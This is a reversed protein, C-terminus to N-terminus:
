SYEHLNNSVNEIDSNKFTNRLQGFTRRSDIELKKRKEIERNIDDGMRLQDSTLDRISQHLGHLHPGTDM